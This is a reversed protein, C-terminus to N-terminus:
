VRKVVEDAIKEISKNYIEDSILGSKRSEDLDELIKKNMASLIDVNKSEILKLVITKLSKKSLIKKLEKLKDRTIDELTIIGMEKLKEIEKSKIGDIKTKGLLRQARELMKETEEPSSKRKKRRFIRRKKKKSEEKSSLLNTLEEIGWREYFISNIEKLKEESAKKFEEYSEPSIENNEYDKKFRDMLSLIKKKEEILEEKTMTRLELLAVKRKLALFDESNIGKAEEEIENKISELDDKRLTDEEFKLKLADLDKIMRETLEDVKAITERDKKIRAVEKKIESFIDEVKAALKDTYRKNEKISKMKKEINETINVLNEFSKIKSFKDEIKKLRDGFKNIETELKELKGDQKQIEGDFKEFRRTIREPDLDEVIMKVKEFNAELETSTKERDMVLRRLDGIKDNADTISQSFAELRSMIAELKGEIRDVRMTLNVIPDESKKTIEIEDEKKPEVILGEEKLEEGITKEKPM